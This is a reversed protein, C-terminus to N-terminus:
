TMQMQLRDRFRATFAAFEKGNIFEAAMHNAQPHIMHLSLWTIPRHGHTISPFAAARFRFSFSLSEVVGDLFHLFSVMLFHLFSTRMQSRYAWAHFHEVREGIVQRTLPDVGYIRRFSKMWRYNRPPFNLPYTHASVVRSFIYIYIYIHLYLFNYTIYICM